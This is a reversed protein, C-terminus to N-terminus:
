EVLTPVATVYYSLNNPGIELLVRLLSEAEAPEGANLKTLAIDCLNQLIEPSLFPAKNVAEKIADLGTSLQGSMCQVLGIIMLIEVNEPSTSLLSECRALAEKVNGAYALALAHFIKPQISDPYAKAMDEWFLGREDKGILQNLRCAIEAAALNKGLTLGHLWADKAKDVQNRAKLADGLYLWPFPDGSELTTSFKYVMEAQEYRNSLLCAMGYQEILTKAISKLGPDLQISSRLLDLGQEMAGELIKINGLRLTALPKLQENDLLGSFIEEAEQLSRNTELAMGLYLTTVPRDPHQQYEDEWRELCEQHRGARSYVANIREAIALQESLPRGSFANWYTQLAADMDGSEEQLRGATEWSTQSEPFLVSLAHAIRQVEPVYGRSQFQNLAQLLLQEARFHMDAHEKWVSSSSVEETTHDGSILRSLLLLMAGRSNDKRDVGLSELFPIAEGYMGLAVLGEVYHLQVSVENPYQKLLKRWTDLRSQGTQHPFQALLEELRTAAAAAKTTGLLSELIEQAEQYQSSSLLADVQAMCMELLEHRSPMYQHAQTYAQAALYFEKNKVARDGAQQLVQAAMPSLEPASSIIEEMQHFAKSSADMLTMLGAYHIAAEKDSPSNLSAAEYASYAEPINDQTEYVLGLQFFPLSSLPREEAIEKWFAAGDADQQIERLVTEANEAVARNEPDDILIDRYYKLLFRSCDKASIKNLVQTMKEPYRKRWMASLSNLLTNMKECDGAAVYQRLIETALSECFDSQTDSFELCKMVIDSAIDLEGQSILRNAIYLRQATEKNLLVAAQYFFVAEKERDLIEAAEAMGIVGVPDDTARFADLRDPIFRIRQHYQRHAQKDDPLMAHLLFHIGAYDPIEYLGKVTDAAHKPLAFGVFHSRSLGERSM